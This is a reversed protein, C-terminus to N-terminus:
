VCKVAIYAMKRKPIQFKVEGKSFKRTAHYFDIEGFKHNDGHYFVSVEDAPLRKFDAPVAENYGGRSDYMYAVVVDTSVTFVVDEGTAKDNDARFYAAGVWEALVSSWTYVRNMSVLVGNDLTDLVYKDDDLAKNAM